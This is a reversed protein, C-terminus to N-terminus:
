GFFWRSRKLRREILDRCWTLDNLSAFSRKPLVIWNSGRWLIFVRPTEKFHEFTTWPLTVNGDASSVALSQESVAMEQTGFAARARWNLVSGIAILVTPMLLMVPLFMVFVKAPSNVANAPPNAEVYSFIGLMLAVFFLALGRIRWSALTCALSDLFRPHATLKVRSAVASSSSGAPDSQQPTPTLSPANLALERFWTQWDESPFARKPVVFLTRKPRDTLVFLDPSELCEGFASWPMVAKSEGNIMTFDGESVEVQLAPPTTKRLRKRLVVFLVSGGVIAALMLARKGEPVERFRFWAAFLMVVLSTSLVLTTRWKSGGAVQERLFLSQAQDTEARTCAYELRLLTSM